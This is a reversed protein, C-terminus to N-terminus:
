TGHPHLCAATPDRTLARPHPARRSPPSPLVRRDLAAKLIPIESEVVKAELQEDDADDRTEGASAAAGRGDAGVSVRPDGKGKKSSSPAKRLRAPRVARMLLTCPSLDGRACRTRRQQIILDLQQLAELVTM